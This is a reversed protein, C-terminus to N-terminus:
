SNNPLALSITENAVLDDCACGESSYRQHQPSSSPTCRCTDWGTVESKPVLYFFLVLLSFKTGHTNDSRTESWFILPYNLSSCVEPSWMISFMLWVQVSLTKNPWGKFIMLFPYDVTNRHLRNQGKIVSMTFDSNKIEQSKIRWPSWQETHSSWTQFSRQLFYAKHKNLNKM